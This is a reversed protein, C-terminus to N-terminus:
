PGEGEKDGQRQKVHRKRMQKDPGPSRDLDLDFAAVEKFGKWIELWLQVIEGRLKDIVM